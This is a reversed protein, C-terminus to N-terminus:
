PYLDRTRSSYDAPLDSAPADISQSAFRVMNLLIRDGVPNRGLHDLIMFTNIIFKGEFFPYIAVHIGSYYGSKDRTPYYGVGFAGAIVDCDAEQSDITFESVLERFMDVDLLGAPLGDFIPHKKAFDDRGPAWTATKTLMGNIELPVWYLPDMNYKFANISAFIAISGRAMADLLHMWDERKGLNGAFGGVLIIARREKMDGSTVFSDFTRAQIGFSALWDQLQEGNDWLVIDHELRPMLEPDVVEIWATGGAPAAGRDFTAVVTYTGAPGDLKISEELVQFALPNNGDQDYFPLSLAIQREFCWGGPGHIKVIAIYDGPLLVDENALVVELNVDSGRYCTCPEVFMCWRLPAWANAMVDSIGAKLERFSNSMVGEGSMGQDVLGTMSYGCIRSNSRILNLAIRRNEAQRRYSAEFFMEMNPFLEDMHWRSWDALFAETEKICIQHDELDEPARAQEYLMMLRPANFESGAGHESLFVPNTGHGLERFFTIDDGRLPYSPYFHADGMGTFYGGAHSAADPADPSEAGWGHEWFLSGPNSYSGITPHKDWRGSNLLVLREPDMERLSSLFDVAHRFVANDPNENLLGWIVISPHNQDRTVMDRLADDFRQIMAPSDELMWAALNEQYVMLGLEDCAALQEPYATGAIFRIMNFGLTKAMYMDRRMLGPDVPRHLGIPFYNGTHASKVFLRKGNLTFFGDVVKFERIGFRTRYEAPHVADDQEPTFQVNCDYLNPDDLSWPRVDEVHLDQMIVISQQDEAQVLVTKQLCPLQDKDPVISIVLNGSIGQESETQLTIGLQIDGSLCASKVTVHEIWPDPVTVLKVPQVIGGYDFDYGTVYPVAKNRHPIEKLVFGDIPDNGPNIVRIALLNQEQWCLSMTCDFRFPMEAGEHSGLFTGNLWAEAFYDVAGFELFARGGDILQDTPTFICWYWAVGHYGPFEQQIVGPVAALCAVIDPITEHWRASKGMNGPDIAIKWESALVHGLSWSARAQQFSENRAM